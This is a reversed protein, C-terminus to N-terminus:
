PQILLFYHIPIVLIDNEIMVNRKRWVVIKVDPEHEYFSMKSFNRQARKLDSGKSEIAVLKGAIKFVIDIEADEMKWYYTKPIPDKEIEHTIRLVHQFTLLENIFGAHRHIEEESLKLISNRLGPDIPYFKRKGRVLKAPSKRYPRSEFILFAHKLANVYQEVTSVKVGLNKSLSYFSQESGAYYSILYFLDELKDPTRARAIRMADKYISLWIYTTLLRYAASISKNRSFFVEPFSGFRSIFNLLWGIKESYKSLKREARLLENMLISPDSSRISDMFASYLSKSIDYVNVGLGRLCERFSMPLLLRLYSRGVLSESTGIILEYASSGSIAIGEKFGLDFITKIQEAWSPHKHAEDIILYVNEFETIIEEVIKVFVEPDSRVKPDDALVYVIPIDSEQAYQKLAITKGTQRPGYLIFIKKEKLKDQIVSVIDRKFEPLEERKGALWPSHKYIIDWVM